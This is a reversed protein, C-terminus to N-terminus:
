EIQMDDSSKRRIGAKRATNTKAAPNSACPESPESMITLDAELVAFAIGMDLPIGMDPLHLPHAPSSFPIAAVGQEAQQPM